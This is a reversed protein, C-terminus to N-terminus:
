RVILSGASGGPKAEVVADEKILSGQYNKDGSVVQWGSLVLPLPDDVAIWEGNYKRTLHVHSGTSVGGECSPHGLPDNTDVWAGAAIRDREAVHLYMIVWGTQEYGDGDLDVMVLGRESRIVLGPAAATVWASSITCGREARNPAFDVAGRPSGIGWAAHPGGTLNWADGTAFPLELRPNELDPPLQPGLETAASWANPFMGNYLNVFNNEGYLINEWNAPRYLTAFLYQVAVSGANLIPSIRVPQGDEFPLTTQSGSRWGYYGITLQRQTLILQKYLGEYTSVTFGM